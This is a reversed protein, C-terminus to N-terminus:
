PQFKVEITIGLKKCEKELQKFDMTYYPTKEITEYDQLDIGLTILIADMYMETYSHCTYYLEPHSVCNFADVLYSECCDCPPNDWWSDDKFVFHKNVAEIPGTCRDHGCSLKDIQPMQDLPQKTDCCIKTM